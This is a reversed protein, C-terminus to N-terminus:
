IIIPNIIGKCELHVQNPDPAWEGNDTCTSTNAGVIVEGPKSCGFAITTGVVAVGSAGSIHLSSGDLAPYQCTATM